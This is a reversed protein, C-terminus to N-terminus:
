KIGTFLTGALFFGIIISAIIKMNDESTEGGREATCTDPRYGRGDFNRWCFLLIRKVNGAVQVIIYITPSRHRHERYTFCVIM